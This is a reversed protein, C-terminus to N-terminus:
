ATILTPTPRSGAARSSRPPRGDARHGPTLRLARAAIGALDPAVAGPFSVSTDGLFVYVEEGAVERHHAWVRHFLDPGVRFSLALYPQPGGPAYPVQWSSAAGIGSAPLLRAAYSDATTTTSTM